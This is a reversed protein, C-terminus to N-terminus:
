SGLGARVKKAEALHHEVAPRVSSLLEKIRSNESNPILRQDLADLLGQHAVIAHDMYARDFQAGHMARLSDRAASAAMALERSVADEAAVVSSSEAVASVRDKVKQHESAMMGAFAKVARSTAQTRAVGADEIEASNAVLMFAVANGDTVRAGATSDSAIVSTSASTDDNKKSCSVTGAVLLLLVCAVASHRVRPRPFPMPSGKEFVDPTEVPRDPPISAPCSVSLRMRFLEERWNRAM